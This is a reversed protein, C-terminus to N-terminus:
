RSARLASNSLSSKWSAIAARFALSAPGNEAVGIHRLGKELLAGPANDDDAIVEPVPDSSGIPQMIFAHPPIDHLGNGNNWAYRSADM